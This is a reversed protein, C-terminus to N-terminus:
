QFKKSKKYESIWKRATPFSIPVEKLAAMAAADVSRFKDHHQAYWAEVHGRMENTEAHRARGALRAFDARVLADNGSYIIGDAYGRLYRADLLYDYADDVSEAQFAQVALHLATLIITMILKFGDEKTMSYGPALTHEVEARLVDFMLNGNAEGDLLRQLCADLLGPGIRGVDFDEAFQDLDLMLNVALEVPRGSLRTTSLKLINLKSM